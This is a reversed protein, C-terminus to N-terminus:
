DHFENCVGRVHYSLIYFDIFILLPSFFSLVLNVQLLSNIHEETERREEQRLEEYIEQM